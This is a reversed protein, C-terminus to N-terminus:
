VLKEIETQPIIYIWVQPIVSSVDTIWLLLLHTKSVFDVASFFYYCKVM